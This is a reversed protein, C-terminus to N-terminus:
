ILLWSHRNRGHNERAFEVIVIAGPNGELFFRNNRQSINDETLELIRNDMM